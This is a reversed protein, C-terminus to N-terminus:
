FVGRAANMKEAATVKEQSWGLSRKTQRKKVRDVDLADPMKLPDHRIFYPIMNLWLLPHRRVAGQQHHNVQSIPAIGVVRDLPIVEFFDQTTNNTNSLLVFRPRGRDSYLPLSPIESLLSCTLCDSGAPEVRDECGRLGFRQVLLYVTDEKGSVRRCSRTNM